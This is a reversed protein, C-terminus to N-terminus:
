IQWDSRDPPWQKPNVTQFRGKAWRKIEDPEWGQNLLYALKGAWKVLAPRFKDKHDPLLLHCAFLKELDNKELGGRRCLEASTLYHEYPDPLNTLDRACQELLIQKMHKTHRHDLLAEVDKETIGPCVAQMQAAIVGFPNESHGHEQCSRYTLGHCARCAFYISGPPLYLKGVRRRCTSNPCTFWYRNGGWPLSTTTLQVIYDISEGDGIYMLEIGMPIVGTM